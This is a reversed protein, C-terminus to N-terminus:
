DVRNLLQGLLEVLRATEPEGLTAALEREAAEVETALLTSLRTGRETLLVLVRRRDAVDVRRHVLARDILRDVLKTLTPPPVMAYNAIESMPHGAGDSLLTLVRWQEATIDHARLTADLRRAVRREARALLGSLDSRTTVPV